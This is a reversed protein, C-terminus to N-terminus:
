SRGLMDEFTTKHIDDYSWQDGQQGNPSSSGLGVPADHGAPKDSKGAFFKYYIAELSLIPVTGAEVAKTNEEQMKTLLKRELEASEDGQMVIGANVLNTMEVDWAKKYAEVQNNYADVQEQQVRAEEDLRQQEKQQRSEMEAIAEQKAQAILYEAVEKETAQRGEKEWPFRDDVEEPPTLEERIKKLEEDFSKRLDEASQKVSEEAKLAIEDLKKDEESDQSADDNVQEDQPDANLKDAVLDEFTSKHLDDYSDEKAQPPIAVPKMTPPNTPKKPM